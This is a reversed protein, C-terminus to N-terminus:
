ENIKKRAVYIKKAGYAAGLAILIALGSGIPAPQVDDNGGHQGPPPPQGMASLGFVFLLLVTLLANLLKRRM